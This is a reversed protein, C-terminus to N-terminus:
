SGKKRAHAANRARASAEAKAKAKAKATSSGVTKGSKAEVIRYPKEGGGQKRVKVPVM